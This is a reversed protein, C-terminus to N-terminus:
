WGVQPHNIDIVIATSKSEDNKGARQEVEIEFIKGLFLEVPDIEVIENGNGTHEPFLKKILSFFKSNPGFESGTEKALEKSRKPLFARARSGTHPGEIVTFYLCAKENNMFTWNLDVKTCKALHNGTPTEEFTKGGMRIKNTM